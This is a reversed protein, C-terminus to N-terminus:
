DQHSQFRGALRLIGSHEHIFQGGAREGTAQLAAAAVDEAHISRYKEANGRLFLDSVPALMRGLGELFRVDGQRQGRLLGPRFIDLRNFRLTKLEREVEGKTRLYFNKAATDAGVSSIHVFSRAGAAKAAAAVAMVLDHDVARFAEESGAKARTTGLANIVAEPALSAIVEPWDQIDALVLEMRVGDPFDMERRALGQLAVQPTHPTRAIVSRGVLGTAGVLLVRRRDHRPLVSAAEAPEAFLPGAPAAPDSM